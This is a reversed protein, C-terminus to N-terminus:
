EGRPLRQLAAAIEEPTVGHLHLHVGGPQQELEPREQTPLAPHRRLRPLMVRHNRYRWYLLGAGAILAAPVGIEVILVLVHILASVAAVVPTIAAAAIVAVLFVLMTMAFGGGSSKHHEPFPCPM